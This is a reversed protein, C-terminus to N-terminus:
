NAGPATEEASPIAPSGSEKVSFRRSAHNGVAQLIRYEVRLQREHQSLHKFVRRQM